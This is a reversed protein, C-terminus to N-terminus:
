LGQLYFDVSKILNKNIEIYGVLTNCSFCLLGRVCNGCTNKQLCCSHDHDVVLRKNKNCIKRKGNQSKLMSQYDEITMRYHTWLHSKKDLIWKRESNNKKWEDVSKKYQEPNNKQWQRSRDKRKEIQDPRTSIWNKDLESKCSKCYAAYGDKTQKNKHFYLIDKLELCKRCMKM